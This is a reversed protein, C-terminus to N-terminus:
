APGAAAAAVDLGVHQLLGLLPGAAGQGPGDAAAPNTATEFASVAYYRTERFDHELSRVFNGMGVELLWERVARSGSSPLRPTVAPMQRLADSKTVVVAVPIRALAKEAGGRLSRVVRHYADESDASAPRADKALAAYTAMAQDRILPISLPDIVVMTGSVHELYEQAQVRDMGDYVEGPPDYFYLLRRRRRSDGIYVLFAPVPGPSTKGVVGGSTVLRKAKAFLQQDAAAAFRLAVRRRGLRELGLLGTMLLMTKGASAAGVVLVHASPDKGIRDPLRHRCRPCDAALRHRGLALATPLTRGCTCTHRLVGDRGPRLQQHSEGCRDCWYVPLPIRRHCNPHPCVLRIRRVALRAREVCRLLVVATGAGAGVVSVWVCHAAAIVVCPVGGVLLGAAVGAGAFVALPRYFWDQQGNGSGRYWRRRLALKIPGALASRMTSVTDGVANRADAFAQALYYSPYGPTHAPSRILRHDALQFWEPVLCTVLSRVYSAVLWSAIKLLWLAFPFPGCIVALALWGARAAIEEGTPDGGGYSGAM